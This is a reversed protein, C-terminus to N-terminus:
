PLLKSVVAGDSSLKFVAIARHDAAWVQKHADLAIGRPEQLEPASSFTTLRAKQPKTDLLWVKHRAPDAIYLVQQDSDYALAAPEGLGSALLHSKRSALDVAYISGVGIDAVFLRRREGDVALPGVRTIGAVELVFTFDGRSGNLALSSIEGTVPDALYAIQQSTDIAIGAISSRAMWMRLQQGSLSYQALTGRRLSANYLAVFISDQDGIHAAVMDPPTFYGLTSKLDRVRGSGPDILSLKGRGGLVVLEGSPLASIAVPGQAKDSPAQSAMQSQMQACLWLALAVQYLCRNLLFKM